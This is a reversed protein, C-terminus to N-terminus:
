CQDRPVVAALSNKNFTSGQVVNSGHADPGPQVLAHGGAIAAVVVVIIIIAVATIVVVIATGLNGYNSKIQTNSGFATGPVRRKKAELIHVVAHTEDKNNAVSDSGGGRRGGLFNM